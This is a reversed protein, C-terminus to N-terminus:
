NPIDWMGFTRSEGNPCTVMGGKVFNLHLDISLYSNKEGDWHRRDASVPIGEGDTLMIFDTYAMPMKQPIRKLFADCFIIHPMRLPHQKARAAGGGLFVCALFGFALVKM